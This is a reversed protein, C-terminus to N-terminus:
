QRGSRDPRSAVVAGPLEVYRFGPRGPHACHSFIILYVFGLAGFVLGWRRGIL